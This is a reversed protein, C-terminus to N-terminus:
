IRSVRGMGGAAWEGSAATTSLPASFTPCYHVSVWVGHSAWVCSFRNMRSVKRHPTVEKNEWANSLDELECFLSDANPGTLHREQDIYLKLGSYTWPVLFKLSKYLVEENAHGERIAISTDELLGLLVRVGNALDPDALVKGHFAEASTQSLKEKDRVHPLILIRIKAMDINNLQYLIDFARDKAAREINEHLTRGAYFAAYIAAAGGIVLVSFQIFTRSQEELLVYLLIAIM